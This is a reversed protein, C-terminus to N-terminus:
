LSCDVSILKAEIDGNDAGFNIEQGDLAPVSANPANLVLATLQRGYTCGSDLGKSWKKIDLGRTAAHGYIVMSPYCPLKEVEGDRDVHMAEEDEWYDDYGDCLDMVRNWIESWPQGQTNKRTVTGNDLVGRMNLVVWPDDSNQPVDDLVAKEQVVRLATINREDSAVGSENEDDEIVPLHALPQHPAHFPFRPDHPLIGAHVVYTHLHPIHLVLPLSLLYEYHTPSLSRAIQYHESMFETDWDDPIRMWDRARTAQQQWSNLLVQTQDGRFVEREYSREMEELWTKGGKHSLVWEIWARWEVIKQDHNGRVGLVYNDSFFSMVDQASSLTAKSLFDGTHILIDSDNNYQLKGLLDQLAESRGHVDGFFIVRRDRRDFDLEGSHLTKVPIYNSFDVDGLPARVRAIGGNHWRVVESTERM